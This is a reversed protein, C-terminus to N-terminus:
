PKRSLLSHNRGEFLLDALVKILRVNQGYVIRARGTMGSRLGVSETTRFASPLRLAIRVAYGTTAGASGSALAEAVAKGITGTAGLLLIRM